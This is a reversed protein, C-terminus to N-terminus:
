RTPQRNVPRTRSYDVTPARPPVVLLEGHAVLHPHPVSRDIGIVDRGELRAQSQGLRKKGM